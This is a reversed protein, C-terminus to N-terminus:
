LLGKLRANAQSWITHQLEWDATHGLSALTAAVDAQTLRKIGKSNAHQYVEEILAEGLKSRREVEQAKFEPLRAALLKKVAKLKSAATKSLRYESIYGFGAVRRFQQLAGDPDLRSVPVTGQTSSELIKDVAEDSSLNAIWDEFGSSDEDDSEFDDLDEFDDGESLTESILIQPDDPAPRLFQVILCDADEWTVCDGQLCTAKIVPCIRIASAQNNM